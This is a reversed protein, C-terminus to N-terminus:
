SEKNLVELIGIKPPLISSNCCLFSIPLWGVSCPSSSDNSKCPSTHPARPASLFPGVHVQFILSLNRPFTVAPSTSSLPVGPLFTAWLLSCPVNLSPCVTAKAWFVRPGREYTSPLQQKCLMQKKVTIKALWLQCTAKTGPVKLFHQLTLEKEFSTIVNGIYFLKSSYKQDFHNFNLNWIENQLSIRGLYASQPPLIKRQSDNKANMRIFTEKHWASHWCGASCIPHPFAEAFIVVWSRSSRLDIEHCLKKKCFNMGPSSKELQNEAM